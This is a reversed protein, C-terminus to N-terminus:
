NEEHPDRLKHKDRKAMVEEYNGMIVTNVSHSPDAENPLQALMTIKRINSLAREAQANGEICKEPYPTPRTISYRNKMIDNKMQEYKAHAQQVAQYIIADIGETKPKTFFGSPVIKDLKYAMFVKALPQLYYWPLNKRYIEMSEKWSPPPEVYQKAQHLLKFLSPFNYPLIVLSVELDWENKKNAVLYGFPEGYGSNRSSSHIYVPWKTGPKQCKLERTMDCESVVYTDRPFNSPLEHSKYFEKHKWYAITPISKRRILSSIDMQLRIAESEIWFNEPIPYFGEFKLPDVYIQELCNNSKPDYNANAEVFNLHVGCTSFINYPYIEKAHEYFDKDTGLINGIVKLIDDSTQLSYLQGRMNANLEHLAAPATYTQSSLFFTFLKQDWRYKEQYFMSSSTIGDDPQYELCSNLFDLNCGDTFWFIGTTENHEVYRGRYFSDMHRIMRRLSLFEFVSAFGTGIRSADTPSLLELQELFTYIPDHYETKICYRPRDSTALIYKVSHNNKGNNVQHLFSRIFLKALDLLSYGNVTKSSCVDILFVIIM